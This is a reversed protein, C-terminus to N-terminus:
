RENLQGNKTTSAFDINRRSTISKGGLFSKISADQFNIKGSLLVVQSHIPLLALISQYILLFWESLWVVSLLDFWTQAKHM